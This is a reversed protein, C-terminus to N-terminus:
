WQSSTDISKASTLLDSCLPTLSVASANPVLLPKAGGIGPLVEADQQETGKNCSSVNSNHMMLNEASPESHSPFGESDVM